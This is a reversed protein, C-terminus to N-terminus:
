PEECQITTLLANVEEVFEPSFGGRARCWLQVRTKDTLTRRWQERQAEFEVEDFLGLRYQYHTNEFIRFLMGDVTILLGAESESLTEGNRSRTVIESYELNAIVSFYSSLGYSLDNRIQAKTLERTQALEFALLAIGAIVGFNAVITLIQGLDIKKIKM